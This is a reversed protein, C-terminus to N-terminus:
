DYSKSGLLLQFEKQAKALREPTGIDIFYGESPFAFCKGQTVMKPFIEEELSAKQGKPISDFVARDFLYVGGSILGKESAAVKERFGKIRYDQDILINGYDGTEHAQTCAITILANRTRHAQLMQHYNIDFYSDGNLVLNEKVAYPEANKIAGATGLLKSERAYRITVGWKSGDGFYDEIAQAGYGVCMVLDRVDESRLKEVLHELFPKGAVTIMPKPLGNTLSKLRTGLGGVLIFARM